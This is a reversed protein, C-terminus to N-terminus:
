LGIHGERRNSGTFASSIMSARIGHLDGLTMALGFLRARSFWALGWAGLLKTRYKKKCM